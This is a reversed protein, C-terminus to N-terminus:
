KTTNKKTKNVYTEIRNIAKHMYLKLKAYFFFSNLKEKITINEIKKKYNVQFRSLKFYVLEISHINIHFLHNFCTHLCLLLKLLLKQKKKGNLLRCIAIDIEVHQM